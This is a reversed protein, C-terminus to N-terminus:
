FRLGLALYGGIALYDDVRTTRGSVRDTVEWDAFHQDVKAALELFLPGAFRWNFGGLVSAIVETGADTAIDFTGGGELPGVADPVDVSAFGVGAGLFTTFRGDPRGFNRQIWAGVVTAEAVVDIPDLTPDQRLELLRAPQEFDYETRDVSVGIAWRDGIRFRGFAGYGPLDNAPEGDAAMISGRLGLDFRQAHAPSALAFALGFTALAAIGTVRARPLRM